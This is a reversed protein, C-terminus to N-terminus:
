KESSLRGGSHSLPGASASLKELEMQKRIQGLNRSQHQPWLQSQKFNLAGLNLVGLARGCANPTRRKHEEIEKLGTGDKM